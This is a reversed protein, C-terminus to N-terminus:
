DDVCGPATLLLAKGAATVRAHAVPKGQLTRAVLVAEGASSTTRLIGRYSKLTGGPDVTARVRVLLRRPTTCDYPEEFAGVARAALGRRDLSVRRSSARCLDGNIGVTGWTRFPFTVTGYGPSVTATPSPRGAAIWAIRNSVAILASGVATTGLAGFAPREWTLGRRGSGVNASAEVTYAGGVFGPTCVFTRDVVGPGEFTAGAGPRKPSSPTTRVRRITLRDLQRQAEARLRASPQSAGFYVTVEVNRGNISAHLQYQGLPQQPRVQTGYRIPSADRLQLPLKQQPYAFALPTASVPTFSAVLVIGHPPLDLLTSYPLASSEALGAVADEPAFPVNAAVAVAQQDASPPTASQLALWGPEPEFGLQLRGRAAEGSPAVLAGVCVGAVLAVVAVGVVAAIRVRRAKARGTPRVGAAARQTSEATPEPLTTRAERLLRELEHDSSM